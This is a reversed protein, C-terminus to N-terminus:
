GRLRGSAHGCSPCRLIRAQIAGRVFTAGIAVLIVSALVVVALHVFLLLVFGAAIILTGTM